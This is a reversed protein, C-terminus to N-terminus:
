DLLKERIINNKCAKKCLANTLNLYSTGLLKDAM